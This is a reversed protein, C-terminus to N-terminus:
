RLMASERAPREWQVGAENEMETMWAVMFERNDNQAVSAYQQYNTKLFESLLQNESPRQEVVRVLYVTDESANLAHGVQGPALEFVTRMFEMGAGNVGNVESLRVRPQGLQAALPEETMWSFFGTKAAKGPYLERLSKGSKQAEAAMVAARQSALKRAEITKWAALVAPKAQEFTPVEAKTAETKWFLYRNGKIDESRRVSFVPLSEFAAETFPRGDVTSQGLDTAEIEFPSVLKTEFVEVGEGAALQKFDLPTPRKLAAAAKPQEELEIEYLEIKQAYDDMAATLRDFVEDIKQKVRDGILKERIRDSVKWLPDHEPPKGGRIDRPLEFEEALESTTPQAGPQAAAPARSTRASSGEGSTTKTEGPAAGQEASSQAAPPEATRQAPANSDGVPSTSTPEPAGGSDDGGGGANPPLKAPQQPEPTAPTDGERPQDAPSPTSSAPEPAPPQVAAEGAPKAEPTGAPEVSPSKPQGGGPEERKPEEYGSYPFEKLHQNYYDEVEKDTVAISKAFQDYAAEFGQFKGRPPVRFGPEPQGPRPYDNKHKEFLARLQGEDPTGVQGIFDAVSVPVVEADVQRHLRQFYDWRMGPPIGQVENIAFIAQQLKNALLVFRLEDFIRRQSVKMGAIIERLQDPSVQELSTKRLYDFITENSVSMGLEQARHALVMTRVVAQEDTFSPGYVGENMLQQLLFMRVQEPPLQVQRSAALNQAALTVVNDLFRNLLARSEVMQYLEREKLDGFSTRVVVNNTSEPSYFMRALPEWIVFGVMAVVALTVLVIKEYRRFWSM